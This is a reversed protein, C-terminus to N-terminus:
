SASGLTQNIHAQAESLRQTIADFSDPHRFFMGGDVAEQHDKEIAAYRNGDPVLILSGQAIASYDVGPQPWRASKMEIVADMADAADVPNPFESNLLRDADYWHRALRTASTPDKEQTCFQHLATLKEWLIYAQDYANVMASPLGLADLNPLESLYTTISHPNSPRGRNRGGFELLVHDLQYSSSTDVVSPYHIEIREGSSEPDLEASLGEIEDCQFRHSLQEVLATSWETLRKSQEKRFKKMQSSNRTTQAWDQAEDASGALDSWHISLDIDESFRDITRWCKSLATGGKFAIDMEEGLLGEDFLLRLTETVWLDKELFNAGLGLPHHQAGYILLDRLEARKHHDSYWDFISTM